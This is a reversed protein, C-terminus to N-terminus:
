HGALRWQETELVDEFGHGEDPFLTRAQIELRKLPVAENPIRDFAIELDNRLCRPV